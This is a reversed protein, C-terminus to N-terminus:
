FCRGVLERGNWQVKMGTNRCAFYHVLGSYLGVGSRAGAQPYAGALNRGCKHYELWSGQKPNAYCFSIIVQYNCNNKLYVGERGGEVTICHTALENKMVKAKPISKRTTNTSSSSASYVTESKNNVIISQNGDNEIAMNSNKNLSGEHEMSNAVERQQSKRENADNIDSAMNSIVDSIIEKGVNPVIYNDGNPINAESLARVVTNGAVASDDFISKGFAMVAISDELLPLESKYKDKLQAKCDSQIERFIDMAEKEMSMEALLSFENIKRDCNALVGGQFFVSLSAILMCRYTVRWVIDRNYKFCRLITMFYNM